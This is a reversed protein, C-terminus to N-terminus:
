PVFSLLFLLALSSVQANTVCLLLSSCSIRSSSILLYFPNQLRGSDIFFKLEDRKSEEIHKRKKRELHKTKETSTYNIYLMIYM